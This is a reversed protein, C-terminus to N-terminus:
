ELYGFWEFFVKPTWKDDLTIYCGKIYKINYVNKSFKNNVADSNDGSNDDFNADSNDDYDYWSDIPQYSYCGCLEIIANQNGNIFSICKSNYTFPPEEIYCFKGVSTHMSRMINNEYSIYLNLFGGEDYRMQIPEDGYSKFIKSLVYRSM